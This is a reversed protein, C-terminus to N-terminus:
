RSLPLAQKRVVRYEADVVQPDSPRAGQKRQALLGGEELKSLHSSATQLTVGAAGAVGVRIEVGVPGVAVGVLNPTGNCVRFEAHAADAALLPSFLAGAILLPKLFRAKARDFTQRISHHVIAAPVGFIRM